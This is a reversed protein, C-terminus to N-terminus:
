AHSAGRAGALLWKGSERPECHLGFYNISVQQIRFDIHDNVGPVAIDNGPPQQKRLTHRSRNFTPASGLRKSFKAPHSRNWETASDHGARTAQRELRDNM